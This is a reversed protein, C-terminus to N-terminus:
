KGASVRIARGGKVGAPKLESKVKGATKRLIDYGILSAVPNNRTFTMFDGFRKGFGPGEPRPPPLFGGDSLPTPVDGCGSLPPPPVCLFVTLLPSPSAVSGM